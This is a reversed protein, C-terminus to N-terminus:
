LLTRRFTFIRKCLLQYRERLIDISKLNTTLIIVDIFAIVENASGLSISLFRAFNAKSNRGFGEAINAPVSISARKIQDCLSYEGRIRPVKCLKFVERTLLLSEKYVNIDELKSIKAM